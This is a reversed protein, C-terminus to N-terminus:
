QLIKISSKHSDKNQYLDLTYHYYKIDFLLICM